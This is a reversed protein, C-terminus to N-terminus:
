RRRPPRAARRPRRVAARGGLEGQVIGVLDALEQAAAAVPQRVLLLGGVFRPSERELAIVRVLFLEPLRQARDPVTVEGGPAGCRFRLGTLDVVRAGIGGADVVTEVVHHGARRGAVFAQHIKGIPERQCEADVATVPEVDVGDLQQGVALSSSMRPATSVRSSRKRSSAPRVVETVWCRNTAICTAWTAASSVVIMASSQDPVMSIREVSSPLTRLQPTSRYRSSALVWRVTASWAHATPSNPAAPPQSWATASGPRAPRVFWRTARRSARAQSTDAEDVLLELDAVLDEGLQRRALRQGHLLDDRQDGPAVDGRGLRRGPGLSPEASLPSEGLYAVGVREGPRVDHSRSDISNSSWASSNRM